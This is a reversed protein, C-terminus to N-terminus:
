CKDDFYQVCQENISGDANCYGGSILESANGIYKDMFINSYWSPLNSARSSYLIESNQETDIIKICIYTKRSIDTKAKINYVWENNDLQLQLQPIINQISNNPFSNSDDTYELLNYTESFLITLDLPNIDPHNVVYTDINKVIQGAQISPIYSKNKNSFSKATKYIFPVIILFAFFVVYKVVVHENHTRYGKVLGIIFFLVIFLSGFLFNYDIFINDLISFLIYVTIGLIIWLFGVVLSSITRNLILAFYKSIKKINDDNLHVKKSNIVHGCNACSDEVNTYITKNCEPCSQINSM